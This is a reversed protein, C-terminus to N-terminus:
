SELKIVQQVLSRINKRFSIDDSEKQEERDVEYEKKFTRFEERDEDYRRNMSKLENIIAFIIEYFGEIEKRSSTDNIDTETGTRSTSTLRTTM